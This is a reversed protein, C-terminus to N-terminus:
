RTGGEDNNGRDLFERLARRVISAVSRDERRALTLLEARTMEDVHAAILETKPADQALQSM